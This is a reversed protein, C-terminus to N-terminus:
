GRHSCPCPTTHLSPCGPLYACLPRPPCGCVWRQGDERWGLGWHGLAGPAREDPPNPRPEEM